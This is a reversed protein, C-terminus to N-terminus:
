VNSNEDTEKLYTKNDINETIKDRRESNSVLAKWRLFMLCAAMHDLHLLGTEADFHKQQLYAALHRRLAAIYRETEIKQWNNAGYKQAGHTLVAVLGEEFLPDILDYRLKDQDFKKGSTITSSPHREFPMQLDEERKVM